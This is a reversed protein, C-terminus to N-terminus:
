ASTPPSTSSSTTRAAAGRGGDPRFVPRGEHVGSAGLVARDDRTEHDRSPPRAGPGPRDERGDPDVGVRGVHRQGHGARRPPPRGDDRRHRAGDPLPEQLHVHVAPEDLLVQPVGGQRGGHRGRGGPLDGRGHAQGGLRPRRRPRDRRADRQSGRPFPRPRAAEGPSRSPSRGVGDSVERTDSAGALPLRGPARNVDVPTRRMRGGTRCGPWELQFSLLCQHPSEGSGTQRAEQPGGALGSWGRRQAQHGDRHSPRRIDPRSRIPTGLRSAIM